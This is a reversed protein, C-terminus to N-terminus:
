GACGIAFRGDGGRALEVMVEGVAVVRSRGGSGEGSQGQSMRIRRASARVNLMSRAGSRPLESPLDALGDYGRPASAPITALDRSVAAFGGSAATPMNQPAPAASNQAAPKTAARWPMAM